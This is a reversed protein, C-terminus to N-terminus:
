TAGGSSIGIGMKPHTYKAAKVLADFGDEKKIGCYFEHGGFVTNCYPCSYPEIMYRHVLEGNDYVKHDVFMGKIEINDIRKGCVHCICFSVTRTIVRGIDLCTGCNKCNM